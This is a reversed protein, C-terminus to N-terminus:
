VGAGVATAVKEITDGRRIRGARVVRCLIGRRGRLEEQLGKRIEEMRSCPHCPASVELIAAGVQLQEGPNIAGLDLGCTTINEKVAGPPIKLHELTELDMLLIQRKSGARGHICGEFGEEEIAWVEGSERVPFRHVVAIFLHEVSAVSKAGL